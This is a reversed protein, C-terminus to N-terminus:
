SHCCSATAFLAKIFRCKRGLKYPSLHFLFTDKYYWTWNRFVSLHLHFSEAELLRLRAESSRYNFSQKFRAYARHYVPPHTSVSRYRATQFSFASFICRDALIIESIAAIAVRSQQASCIKMPWKESFFSISVLLSNVSWSIGERMCNRWNQRRSLGFIVGWPLKPILM